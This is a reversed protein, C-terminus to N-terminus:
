GELCAPRTAPPPRFWSSSPPFVLSPRDLPPQKRLGSGFVSIGFVRQRALMFIVGIDGYEMTKVGSKEDISQQTPAGLLSTIRGEADWIGLGAVRDCYSTPPDSQDVCDIKAVRGSKADFTVDFHPNLIDNNSYAWTPFTDTDTGDPLANAPNKKPDTFYGHVVSEGAQPAGYVVPPDCQLPVGERLRNTFVGAVLPREDAKPTEREVLSALTM